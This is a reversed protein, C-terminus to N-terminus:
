KYLTVSIAGGLDGLKGGEKKGGTIDAEGKPEGHCSLCAETYYEPLILRYAKKGGKDTLEAKHAGKKHDASKFSKDIVGSEWDDPKNARNRVIEKPATLKIEAIGGQAASFDKAVQGAFIAPLFGKFGKGKENILPQAKEMVNKVSTQLGKILKGKISNSDISSVEVGLADKFNKDAAAVVADGTLGKDGKDPDNILAQNDSIVKRAARFYGAVALATDEDEDAFAPALPTATIVAAMFAIVFLKKNKAM